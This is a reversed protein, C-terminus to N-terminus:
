KTNLLELAKIRTREMEGTDLGREKAIAELVPAVEVLYRWMTKERDLLKSFYPSAEMTIGAEKPYILKKYDLRGVVISVPIYVGLIVVAFLFMSSFVVELLPVSEILLRYQIVVFNAMAFILTLNTQGRKFYVVFRFFNM